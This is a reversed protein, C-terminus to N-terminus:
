QPRRTAALEQVLEAPDRDDTKIRQTAVGEYLPTRERLLKILRGRVDGILLPRATNLGIRHGASRISVELWIVDHGQLAERIDPDM